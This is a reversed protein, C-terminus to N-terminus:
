SRDATPRMFNLRRTPRSAISPAARQRVFVDDVDDADQDIQAVALALDVVDIVEAITAHTRDAFQRLVLEAGAEHADLAGDLLTQRLGLDSLRIGCSRILALGILAAILSNKPELWSDCNMSWVLGSDSIVCLRRTRGEARATQRALAGAEFHAVHMRGVVAAHARDLRRFARVDAQDIRQRQVGAGVLVAEELRRVTADDFLWTVSCISKRDAMSSPLYTIAWAFADSSLLPAQGIFQHGATV